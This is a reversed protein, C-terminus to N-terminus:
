RNSKRLRENVWAVVVHNTLSQKCLASHLRECRMAGSVWCEGGERWVCIEKMGVGRRMRTEAGERRRLGGEGEGGDAGASFGGGGALVVEQRHVVM